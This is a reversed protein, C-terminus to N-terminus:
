QHYSAYFAITNQAFILCSAIGRALRSVLVNLCFFSLSLAVRLVSSRQRRALSLFSPLNDRLKWSNPTSNRGPEAQQLKAQTHEYLVALFQMRARQKKEIREVSYWCVLAGIECLMATLSWNSKWFILFLMVGALAVLWGMGYLLLLTANPRSRKKREIQFVVAHAIGCWLIMGGLSWVALTWSSGWFLFFFFSLLFILPPVSGCFFVLAIGVLLLITVIGLLVKLLLNPAQRETQLSM